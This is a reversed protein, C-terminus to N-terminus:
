TKKIIQDYNQNKLFFRVKNLRKELKRCKRYKMWKRCKGYLCRNRCENEVNEVNKTNIILESDLFRSLQNIAKNILNKAWHLQKSKTLFNNRNKWYVHKVHQQLNTTQIKLDINM